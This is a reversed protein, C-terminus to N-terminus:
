FTYALGVAGLWQNKSGAISVLPSDAFDNLMRRYTGGAVLKFGKLLNGTLSYTALGGLTYNKWGGRASYTPLGSAVSQTPSVSFYTTGYGRGAREATAFLAVAAKTSLPTLYNVSPQWIGSDHANSVDHRYSITASLKDYPSTIVGTKGIGIYGGLEIATKIEGLARVRRDEINDINNRNFNVVGIPGAQIDITSNPDNPILDVSLRNGALTFGFGKVSGIAAPAPTWRYDNSGEYDTLYVGGGGITISDANVDFRDIAGSAPPAGADQAIAPTATIAATAFALSMLIKASM